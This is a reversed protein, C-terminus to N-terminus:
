DWKVDGNRTECLYPEVLELPVLMEGVDPPKRNIAKLGVVNEHGLGGLYVGTVIWISAEHDAYRKIIYDGPKM